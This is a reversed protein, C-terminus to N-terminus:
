DCIKRAWHLLLLSRIFLQSYHFKERLSGHQFRLCDRKILDLYFINLIKLRLIHKSERSNRVQKSTSLVM